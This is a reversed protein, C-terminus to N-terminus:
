VDSSEPASPPLPIIALVHRRLIQYQEPTTDTFAENRSAPLDSYVIPKTFQGASFDLRVGDVINYFHWAGEVDTKALQGALIDQAVLATVVCQGLAPNCSLWKSSTEVSWAKELAAQLAAIM